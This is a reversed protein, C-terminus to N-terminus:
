RLGLPAMAILVPQSALYADLDTNEAVPCDVGNENDTILKEHKKLM